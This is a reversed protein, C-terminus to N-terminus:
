LAIFKIVERLGELSGDLEVSDESGPADLTWVRNNILYDFGEVFINEYEGEKRETSISRDVYSWEEIFHYVFSDIVIGSLHYKRFHTDRIERFHRCTDFLLGNSEKNKERMAIQEIKPNTPMWNGGNNTDAYIYRGTENGWFNTEKFAPLIEFKIRDSFDINVIQGDAKIKSEPYYRKIAKKVAQLLRSQGNGKVNDFRYYEDKPLEVLIDIDSTKVATRRGYSGVYFSHKTESQTGWFEDNIAKTVTQYRSSIVKRKKKSIGENEVVYSSM